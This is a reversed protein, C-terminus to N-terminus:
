YHGSLMIQDMVWDMAPHLFAIIWVWDVNIWLAFAAFGSAFELSFLAASLPCLDPFGLQDPM